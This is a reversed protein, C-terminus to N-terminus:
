GAAAQNKELEITSKIFDVVDSLTIIEALAAKDMIKFDFATELVIVMDVVDLSDLELDDKIRAEPVMKERDLEFEEIMAESVTEWIQEDTM